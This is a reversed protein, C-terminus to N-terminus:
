VVATVAELLMDLCIEGGLADVNQFHAQRIEL